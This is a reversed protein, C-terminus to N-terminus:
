KWIKILTEKTCLGSADLEYHPVGKAKLERINDLLLKNGEADKFMYSTAQYKIQIGEAGTMSRSGNDTEVLKMLDSVCSVPECSVAYEFEEPDAGEEILKGLAALRHRGGILYFVSITESLTDFDEEFFAVRFPTFVTYENREIDKALKNVRPQVLKFQHFHKETNAKAVLLDSVSLDGFFKSLM